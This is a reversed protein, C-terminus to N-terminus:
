PSVSKPHKGVPADTPSYENMSDTPREDSLLSNSLTETEPFNRQKATASCTETSNPHPECCLGFQKKMSQGQASSPYSLGEEVEFPFTIPYDKMFVAPSMSLTFVRRYERDHNILFM